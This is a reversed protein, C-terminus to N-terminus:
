VRHGPRHRRRPHDLQDKCPLNAGLRQCQAARPVRFERREGGRQRKSSGEGTSTSVFLTEGPLSGSRNITFTVTGTNENITTSAPSISYSTAQVQDDDAITFTAKTLFTSAPDSSNRQVLLGFSESNEAVSDNTLSVTVSQQAQGSTFTLQENLKGAYDNSNASGEGTSTSVFLTEGLLSGSRTVTFTVTGTNENVTISAPSISYSTAQVQDDDAITFTAKTLFTGPPDSSNRQVLLGFTESNEAVSDNTLSVTVTRQTQGSTFTLQENLKGTYDNSNSSGEGTSTSVFLTEAPLGGSRSVTFTVTGANENVTISSPSISYSTAQAQDDDAITFTAKALFTSAPDSSNRQVLLGFTESNEAASDNTLSVTVTRQTQGSTFTLQENLKGTYDNSNSSGEGTSTSVFLTEAPLGGSRSVTFTVTGANENATISGPSISYSTAQVQDDDAITFTAKALFTGAPDSSNRQVLLGFTESNEAVSDNTLSVTVTRQTQGSTFTLQTRV